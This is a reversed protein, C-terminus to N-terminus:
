SAIASGMPKMTAPFNPGSRSPSSSRARRQPASSAPATRQGPPAAGGGRPGRGEDRAAAAAPLGYLAALTRTWGRRARLRRRLEHRLREVQALDEPAAARGGFLVAQVRDVVTTADVDLSESLLRATEELTQSLPVRVGFDRLDEYLLALSARLRRELDGRRARRRRRLTRAVPWAVALAVLAGAWALWDAGRSPSVPAGAGGIGQRHKPGAAPRAPRVLSWAPAGRGTTDGTFPDAFGM